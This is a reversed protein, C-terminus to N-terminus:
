GERRLEEPVEIDLREFLERAPDTLSELLLHLAEPHPPALREILEQGQQYGQIVQYTGYSIAGSRVLIDQAEDLAQPDDVQDLLESFRDKESHDAVMAFLIALNNWRSKWDPKAPTELADNMDDGSQIIRGIPEGLAGVARAEQPSAGAFLAGLTFAGAFLPPTKALTVRWYAAELDDGPPSTDLNQGVATELSALTLAAQAERAAEPDLGAQELVRCAAAQFALAINACAGVGIEHHLGDPDEDLLDDVLHIGNLLCVIAAMAPLSRDDDGGYARCSLLPYEWVPITSTKRKRRKGVIRAMAPWEAVQPLDLLLEQIRPVYDM